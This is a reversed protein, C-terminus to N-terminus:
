KGLIKVIAGPMIERLDFDMPADEENQAIFKYYNSNTSVLTGSIVKTGYIEVKVKNSKVLYRARPVVFVRIDDKTFCSVVVANHETLNLMQTICEEYATASRKYNTDLNTLNQNYTNQLELLKQEYSAKNDEITKQAELLDKNLQVKEKYLRLVTETYNDSMKDVIKNTTNVYQPISNKQPIKAVAARLYKYKDYFDQYEAFNELIEEDEISNFRIIFDSNFTKTISFREDKIIQDAKEDKLVPDLKNIEASYKGSVQNVASRVGSFSKKQTIQKQLDEIRSEYMDIIKKRELEQLKRESDIVKENERASEITEDDFTELKKKYEEAQKELEAIKPEYEQKIKRIKAQYEANIAKKQAASATEDLEEISQLIFLDDERKSEAEKLSNNMTLKYLDIQNITNDYQDQVKTVSNLLSQLNLDTFEELNVKINENQKQISKTMVFAVLFVLLFLIFILLFTFPSKHKKTKAYERELNYTDATTQTQLNNLEENLFLLVDKHRQANGIEKSKIKNDNDM